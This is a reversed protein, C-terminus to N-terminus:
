VCRAVDRVVPLPKVKVRALNAAEKARERTDAAVIAVPEGLFRVREEALVPQDEIVEEVVNAALDKATCVLVDKPLASFDLEEIVGHSIPSRVLALELMGEERYDGAFM